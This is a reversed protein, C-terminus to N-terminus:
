CQPLKLSIKVYLFIVYYYIMDINVSNYPIHCHEAVQPSEIVMSTIENLNPM